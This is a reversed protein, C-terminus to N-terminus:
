HQCSSLGTGEKSSTSRSRRASRARRAARARSAAAAGRKHPDRAHRHGRGTCEHATPCPTARRAVPPRMSVHLAHSQVAGHTTTCGAKDTDCATECAVDCATEYLQMGHRHERVTAHVTECAMRRATPIGHMGPPPALQRARTRVRRPRGERVPRRAVMGGPPRRGSVVWWRAVRHVGCARRRTRCPPTASGAVRVRQHGGRVCVALRTSQVRPAVM